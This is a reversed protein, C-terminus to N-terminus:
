SPARQCRVAYNASSELPHRPFVDELVRPNRLLARGGKYMCRLRDAYALDLRPNVSRLARLKMPGAMILESADAHRAFFRRPSDVM